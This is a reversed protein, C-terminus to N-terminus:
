GGWRIASASQVGQIAVEKGSAWNLIVLQTGRSGVAFKGSPSLQANELLYTSGSLGAKGVKQIVAPGPQWGLRQLTETPPPTASPLLTATPPSGATAIAPLVTSGDIHITATVSGAVYQITDGFLTYSTVPVVSQSLPILPFGDRPLRWLQPIHTADPAIFYLDADMAVGLAEPLAAASWVVRDVHKLPLM